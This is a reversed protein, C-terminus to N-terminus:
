DNHRTPHGLMSPGSEDVVKTVSSQDLKANGLKRGKHLQRGMMEYFEILSYESCMSEGDQILAFTQGADLTILTGVPEADPADSEFLDIRGRTGDLVIREVTVAPQKGEREMKTHVEYRLAAFASTPQLLLILTLLFVISRLM